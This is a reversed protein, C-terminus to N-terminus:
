RELIEKRKWGRKMTKRSTTEVKLNPLSLFTRSKMGDGFEKQCFYKWMGVSAMEKMFSFFAIINMIHHISFWNFIGSQFNQVQM